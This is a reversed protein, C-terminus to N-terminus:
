KTAHNLGNLKSKSVFLNDYPSESLKLNEAYHNISVKEAGACKMRIANDYDKSKSIRNFDSHIQYITQESLQDYTKGATISITSIMDEMLINAKGKARAQLVENAWEQVLANKYVKPEYILNQTMALKRFEDYNTSHIRHIEDIAFVYTDNNSTFRVEKQIILSFLKELRKIINSDKSSFVILDLLPFHHVKEDFNNKSYQLLYSCEVFEDYDKLKIPYIQGVGDLHSPKGLIHRLSEM